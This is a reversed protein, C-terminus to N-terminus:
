YQRKTSRLRLSANLRPRRKTDATGVGSRRTPLDRAASEMSITPNRERLVRESASFRWPSLGQLVSGSPKWYAAGVEEM